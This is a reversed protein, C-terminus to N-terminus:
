LFLGADLLDKEISQEEMRGKIEDIMVIQLYIYEM